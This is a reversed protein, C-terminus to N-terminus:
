KKKYLERQQMERIERLKFHLTRNLRINECNRSNFYEKLITKITSELIESKDITDDHNLVEVNRNFKINLEEISQIYDSLKTYNQTLLAVKQQLKSNEQALFELKQSMENLLNSLNSM